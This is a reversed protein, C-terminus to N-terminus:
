TIERGSSPVPSGPEDPEFDASQNVNLLEITNGIKVRGYFPWPLLL